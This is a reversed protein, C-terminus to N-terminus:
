QFDEPDFEDRITEPSVLESADDDDFVYAVSYGGHIQCSEGIHLEEAFVVAADKTEFPGIWRYDRCPEDWFEFIRVSM